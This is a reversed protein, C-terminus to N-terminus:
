RQAAEIQPLWFRMEMAHYLSIASELHRRADESRGSRALFRGLEGHSHALEPRLERAEALAIAERLHEEGRDAEGTGAEIMGVLRLAFIELDLYKYCRALDLAERAPALAADPAACRMHAYGLYARLWAANRILNMVQSQQAARAIEADAQAAKGTLARGYALLASAFLNLYTIEGAQTVARARELVPLAEEIDGKHLLCTGLRVGAYGIDHPRRVEDAIVGAAKGFAIATAFEGLQEHANSLLFLAMSSRVAIQGFREHRVQGTLYDLDPMLLEITPRPEGGFCYAQALAIRTEVALTRDDLTAVIEGARQAAAKAQEIEGKVSDMYSQHLLVSVLRSRDGASSALQEAERLYGLVQALEGIPGLVPRLKIRIDIAQATVRESAPLQSLAQLAQRFFGAAQRYASREVARDGAHQLYTAAKEWLEGHSAHHALREIHEELRDGYRAEIANVLRAHLGRRRDRLMGEYAVDRILAHKFSYSLEPLARVEYMLESSRLEALQSAWEDDPVDGIARLLDIPVDMGIVSAIQLLARVELPLRDIRAALVAQVTSPVSIDGIHTALRYCGRQGAIAGMEALSRVAEEIFLPTGDTRAALLRRLSALAADGGLLSELLREAVNAALPELRILSCGRRSSWGHGYQPRHTVILLLRATALADVLHDLVAQTEADCWHLDELLVLLPGARARELLVATVAEIIRRRRQAPELCQWSEDAPLDLVSALAPLWALLGVDISAIGSRVKEAIMPLSDHSGVMFWARLLARIPFYTTDRDYPSAGGELVAWGEAAATRAFEHSLRSKGLGPEGEIAVVQGHGTRVEDLARRLRALEGDRGVFAGLGRAARVEWASHVRSRGTLEFLEIPGTVGRVPTPGLPSVEVFGEVLRCTDRTLRITGPAALQEMRSALHVTPGIADYDMSLDNRISRVVVEGSHLGVRILDGALVRPMDEQMALAAYCARLAHDEHALPAGFLAMIGDGQLKNVTGEYRHVAAMMAELAPSLRAAAQEPDLGEILRTSGVVDAFLVTVQKREGELASRSRLIREALHRPTYSDPKPAAAQEASSGLKAIEALLKKRHGLSGVGLERLDDDTLAALAESDIDNEAFARRYRGLGLRDLWAAVDRPWESL